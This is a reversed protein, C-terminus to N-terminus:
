KVRTRASQQRQVGITELLEDQDFPKALCCEAGAELVRRVNEDTYFGTMAIVRIAQTTPESKIQECVDFGNLGPMMLDLLVVNPQFSQVIRGANYGNNAVMCELKSDVRAFLRSLYSAVQVDDDVILLRSVSDTPFQIQINKDRAFREVERRMFRRHGGPTSVAGLDGKSAWLRITAPSVM